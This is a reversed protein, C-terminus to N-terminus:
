CYTPTRSAGCGWLSIQFEDSKKISQSLNIAEPHLEVTHAIRYEVIASLLIITIVISDGEKFVTNLSTPWPTLLVVLDERSQQQDVSRSTDGPSLPLSAPSLCLELAKQGSCHMATQAETAM